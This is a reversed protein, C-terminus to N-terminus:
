ENWYHKKAALIETLSKLFLIYKRSFKSPFSYIIPIPHKFKAM